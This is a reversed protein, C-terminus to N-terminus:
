LINKSVVPSKELQKEYIDCVVAYKKNEDSDQLKQDLRLQALNFAQYYLAKMEASKQFWLTSMTLHENESINNQAFVGLSLVSLTIFLLFSKM